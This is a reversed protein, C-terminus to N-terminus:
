EESKTAFYIIVGLVVAVGGFVAIKKGTSWKEPPPPTTTVIGGDTSGGTGGGTGGGTSGGTGLITNFFSGGIDFLLSKAKDSKIWGKTKDWIKGEKAKKIQEDKTPANGGSVFKAMETDFASGYKAIASTTNADVIGTEVLAPTYKKLNHWQQFETIQAPTSKSADFSLYKDPASERKKNVFIPNITKIIM